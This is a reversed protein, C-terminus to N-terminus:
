TVSSSAPLLADAQLCFVFASAVGVGYDNLCCHVPTQCACVVTQSHVCHHVRTHPPSALGVLREKCQGQGQLQLPRPLLWPQHRSLLRPPVSPLLPPPAPHMPPMCPRLPPPTQLPTPASPPAAMSSSRSVAQCQPAREQGQMLVM